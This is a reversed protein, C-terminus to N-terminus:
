QARLCIQSLSCSETQVRKMLELYEDSMLSLPVWKGAIAFGLGSGIKKGDKRDPLADVEVFSQQATMAIKPHVSLRDDYQAAGLAVLGTPGIL